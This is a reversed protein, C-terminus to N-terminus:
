GKSALETRLAGAELYSVGVRSETYRTQMVRGELEDFKRM